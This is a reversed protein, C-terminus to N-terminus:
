QHIFLGSFYGTLAGLVLTSLLIQPLAKPDLKIILFLSPLLLIGATLIGNLWPMATFSLRPILIGTLIWLIAASVTFMPDLKKIIMPVTDILAATCGIILSILITNM